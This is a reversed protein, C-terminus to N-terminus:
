NRVRLYLFAGCEESSLLAILGSLFLPNSRGQQKVFGREL